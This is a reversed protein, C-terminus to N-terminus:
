RENRRGNSVVFKDDNTVIIEHSIIDLALKQDKKDMANM